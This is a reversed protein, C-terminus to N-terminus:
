ARAHRQQAFPPERRVTGPPRHLPGVVPVDAGRGREADAVRDGDVREGARGGRWLGCIGFPGHHSGRRGSSAELQSYLNYEPGTVACRTTITPPPTRPVICATM